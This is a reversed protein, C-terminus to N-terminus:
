SADPNEDTEAHTSKWRTNEQATISEIRQALIKRRSPRAYPGSEALYMFKEHKLAEATARYNM